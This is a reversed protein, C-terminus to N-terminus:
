RQVCLFCGVPRDSTHRAYLLFTRAVCLMRSGLLFSDTLTSYHLLFCGGKGPSLYPHSPPALAWWGCLSIRATCRLLQLTMYVPMFLIARGVDSPLGSSGDPSLRRLYIVSVEGQAPCLVRSIPRSSEKKDSSGRDKHVLLIDEAPLLEKGFVDPADGVILDSGDSFLDVVTDFDEQQGGVLEHVVANRHTCRCQGVAGQEGDDRNQGDQKGDGSAEAHIGHDFGLEAFSHHVLLGFQDECPHLGIQLMGLAPDEDSHAEDHQEEGDQYQYVVDLAAEVEDPLHLMRAAHEPFDGVIKGHNQQQRQQNDDRRAQGDEHGGVHLVHFVEQEEGRHQFCQYPHYRVYQRAGHHRSEKDEHGVGLDAQAM